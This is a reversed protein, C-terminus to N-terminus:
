GLDLHLQGDDFGVYLSVMNEDDQWEAFIEPEHLASPLEIKAARKDGLDFVAQFISNPLRLTEDPM